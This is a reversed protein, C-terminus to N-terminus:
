NCVYKGKKNTRFLQEENALLNDLNYEIGSKFGRIFAEKEALEIQKLILNVLEDNMNKCMMLESIYQSLERAHTYFEETYERVENMKDDM